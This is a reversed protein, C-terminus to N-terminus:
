AGTDSAPGGQFEQISPQGAPEFEEKLQCRSMEAASENDSFGKNPQYYTCVFTGDGSKSPSKQYYAISKKCSKYSKKDSLGEKKKVTMCNIIAVNKWRWKLKTPFWDCYENTFDNQFGVVKFERKCYENVCKIHASVAAKGEAKKQKTCAIIQSYKNALGVDECYWTVQTGSFGLFVYEDQCASYGPSASALNLNLLFFM